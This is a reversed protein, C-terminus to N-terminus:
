TPKIPDAVAVIAALRGDIAAYLPSKGENGLREATAAFAGVDLGLERMYRDAGVEVRSGEVIARVGMGTVSEFEGLAPLTIGEQEAAEVIARAIPHESRSEVAAIRALVQGRDFDEAIELDTLTPRGETLTGTKDVAVVKAD